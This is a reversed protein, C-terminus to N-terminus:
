GAIDTSPVRPSSLLSIFRAKAYSLLGRLSRDPCPSILPSTGAGYIPLHLCLSSPISARCFWTLPSQSLIQVLSQIRPGPGGNRETQIHRVLPSHQPGSTPSSFYPCPLSWPMEPQMGPTTVQEPFGCRWRCASPQTAVSLVPWCGYRRTWKGM